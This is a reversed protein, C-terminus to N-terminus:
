ATTSPLALVAEPTFTLPFLSMMVRVCGPASKRARIVSGNKAAIGFFM